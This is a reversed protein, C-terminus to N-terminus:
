IVRLGEEPRPDKVVVVARSAAVAEEEVGEICLHGADATPSSVTGQKGFGGRPGRFCRGMSWLDRGSHQWWRRGESIGPEQRTVVHGAGEM